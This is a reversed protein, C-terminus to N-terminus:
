GVFLKVIKNEKIRIEKESRGIIPVKVNEHFQVFVFILRLTRENIIM